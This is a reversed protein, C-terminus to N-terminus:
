RKLPWHINTKFVRPIIFKEEFGDETKKLICALFCNLKRLYVPINKELIEEEISSDVLGTILDFLVEYKISLDVM